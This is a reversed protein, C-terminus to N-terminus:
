KTSKLFHKYKNRTMYLNLSVPEGDDYYTYDPPEPSVLSPTSFQIVEENEETPLLRFFKMSNNIM